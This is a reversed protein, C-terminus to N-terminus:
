ATIMKTLFREDGQVLDAIEKLAESETACYIQNGDKSGDTWQYELTIVYETVLEDFYVTAEEPSMLKWTLAVNEWTWTDLLSIKGQKM